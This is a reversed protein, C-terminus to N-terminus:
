PSSNPHTLPRCPTDKGAWFAAKGHYHVAMYYTQARWGRLWRLLGRLCTARQWRPATRHAHDIITQLNRRFREDAAAKDRLSRGTQYDWDHVNCAGTIRLGFITDPVNIGDRAGCGNTIEAILAAPADRYDPACELPPISRTRTM